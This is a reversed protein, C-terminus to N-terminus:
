SRKLGTTSGTAAGSREGAFRSGPLRILTNWASTDLHEIDTFRESSRIMRFDSVPASEPYIRNQLYELMKGIREKIFHM